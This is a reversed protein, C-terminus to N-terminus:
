YEKVTKVLGDVLAQAEKEIMEPKVLESYEVPNPVFGVEVLVSPCYYMRTVRYDAYIAGKGRINRGTYEHLKNVLNQAFVKSNIPSHYFVEVGNPKGM